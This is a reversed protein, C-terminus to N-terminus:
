KKVSLDAVLMFHDSLDEDVLDFQHVNFQQDPLIYDIRLTPALSAYSRGLGFGKQLFADKRNQRIHLYVYSGPVDNFDGCIVSKYPIHTLHEQIIDAQVARRQFAKKMKVVTSKSSLLADEDQNSLRDINQYDSSNFKFSQLHATYIRITDQDKVIDIYIFSESLPKPYKIKGSHIIPYKSFIISGSEYFGKGKVYDKSFYHHPYQEEFLAINDAQEGQTESHNFEQLCIIDPNVHQISAAIEKRGNIRPAKADSRGNMSGVNWSVIRICSDAIALEFSAPWRVAFITRVHSWGILLSIAPILALVPKAAMWFIVMFFLLVILYPQMLGLFGIPWWKAPSIYTSFSAIVFCACVPLTLLIFLKKFLRRFISKAM